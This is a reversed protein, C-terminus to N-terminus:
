CILLIKGAAHRSQILRHAEPAKALPLRAAIRVELEGLSIWGFLEAARAELESRESIFSWLTPRTLWLSKGMLHLPPKPEVPGSANGFTVMAGRPRLLQLSDDYVAAGVGDYVVDISDAGVAAEVGAVLDTTTYNVVHDAGASRALAAKDDSGVTAVVEAGRLKAMQVLLRGTGGAAAHVLCRDGPKLRPCDTALYHATMGQLLVAAAVEISIDDPVPIAVAAPVVATQAYSGGSGCWAVRDGVAFGETGDGKTVVTGAGEQGLGTPLPLEYLGSRHYTDIFNVGAAAVEVLLEGVGPRPVPLDVLRMVEPGGVSEIRIASTTQNGTTTPGM